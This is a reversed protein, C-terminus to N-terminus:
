SDMWGGMWGDMWVGVGLRFGNLFCFCTELIFHCWRGRGHQLLLTSCHVSKYSQGLCILIFFSRPRRRVNTSNRDYLIASFSAVVSMGYLVSAEVLLSQTQLIPGMDVVSIFSLEMYLMYAAHITSVHMWGDMPGDMWGGMWGAMRGDMWGDMWGNM